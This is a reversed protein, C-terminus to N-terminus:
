VVKHRGAPGAAEPQTFRAILVDTFRGEAQLVACLEGFASVPCWVPSRERLDVLHTYDRLAVEQVMALGDDGLMGPHLELVIPPGNATVSRAGALVRGEHGQVDLWVMGVQESDLIRRTALQDLPRTKVKQRIGEGRQGAPLVRGGGSNSPRVLMHVIETRDSIAVQLARLRTAVGNLLANCRLLRVNEALPECALANAFGHAILAPVTTTGINAGVDVFTKGPPVPAGASALLEMARALTKFEGRTGREFLRRGVAMDGTGVLFRMSGHRAEVLDAFAAAEAFFAARAASDDSM